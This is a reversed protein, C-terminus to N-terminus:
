HNVFIELLQALYRDIVFDLFGYINLWIGIIRENISLFVGKFEAKIDAKLSYLKLVLQM